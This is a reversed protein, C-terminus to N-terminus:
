KFGAQNINTLFFFIIFNLFYNKILNKSESLLSFHTSKVIIHVNKREGTQSISKGLFRVEILFRYTFQKKKELM